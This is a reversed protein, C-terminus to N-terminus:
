GYLLSFFAVKLLFTPKPVCHVFTVPIDYVQTYPQNSWTSKDTSDDEELSSFEVNSQLHDFISSNLLIKLLLTQVNPVKNRLSDAIQGDVTQHKRQVRPLPCNQMLGYITLYLVNQSIINWMSICEQKFNQTFLNACEFQKFNQPSEFTANFLVRDFLSCKSFCYEM